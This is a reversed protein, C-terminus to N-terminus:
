TGLSPLFWRMEHQPGFLSNIHYPNGSAKCFCSSIPSLCWVPWSLHGRSGAGPKGQRVQLGHCYERSVSSWLNVGQSGCLVLIFRNGQRKVTEIAMQKQLRHGPKAQHHGQLWVKRVRSERYDSTYSQKQVISVFSCELWPPSIRNWWLKM